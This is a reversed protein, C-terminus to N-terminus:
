AATDKSVYHHLKEGRVCVVKRTNNHVYISEIYGKEWMYWEIHANSLKIAKYYGLLLLM